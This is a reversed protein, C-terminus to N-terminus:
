FRTMTCCPIPRYWWILAYREILLAMTSQMGEPLFELPNVPFSAMAALPHEAQQPRPPTSVVPETEKRSIPLNIKVEKQEKVVWIM